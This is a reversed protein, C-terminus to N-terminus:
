GFPKILKIGYGVHKKKTITNFWNEIGFYDQTESIEGELLNPAYIDGNLNPPRGYSKVEEWDNDDFDIKKWDDTEQLKKSCVWWHDSIIQQILNYKLQNQGYINIAGKGGEFNWAEIALINEGENLKKTIDFIKVRSYIPLASLSFRSYVDGLYENNLYVKMYNGAICQLIAKKVPELIEITKRFYCPRTSDDHDNIWIWESELFPDKFKIDNKIQEIKENYTKNLFDFLKLIQFLCPLKAANLWLNRFRTKLYNTKIIIEKLSTNIQDIKDESLDSKLLLKSVNDSLEIKDALYEALEIGYHIYEFNQKEFIIKSKLEDHFVLCQNAITKLKSFNKFSTKFKRFPFPHRFLYTYFLPPILLSVRYYLSPSSSLLTFMQNFKLLSKKNLGFFLFGYQSKFNNYDFNLTSWTVAGTLISGFIENERFSYYRQDGWASTILGLCGQDKFKYAEEALSIINKSANNNDPFNRQWNLMSPSVIIRYGSNLLNKIKSYKEKPKYNWYMLIIDKNIVNILDDDLKLIDHYMIVHRKNNKKVMNYIKDTFDQISKKIGLKEIYEKSRGAGIDYPEDCGVHFYDTSFSKSIKSIYDEILPYIDSNSIDFCHAGPFEGLNEYKSHMLINDVHGLCEFIPVLEIHRDVSYQNIEKIEKIKFAGRKRGIKPHKSHSFMDEIYLCCFNLKYNSLIKLFRKASEVTFVQGRSIDISVGRIRLDPLDKIEIEPLYLSKREIIASEILKKNSLFSNKILQIFTQVGYFLGKEFKSYICVQNNFIELNYAEDNNIDLLDWETKEELLLTDTDKIEDRKLIISSIQDLFEQIDSILIKPNELNIPVINCESNLIYANNEELKNIEKPSPIFTLPETLFEPVKHLNTILIAKLQSSM